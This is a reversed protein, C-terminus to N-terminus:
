VFRSSQCVEAARSPVCWIRDCSSTAGLRTLRIYSSLRATSMSSRDVKETGRSYEV